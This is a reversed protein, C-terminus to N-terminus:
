VKRGQLCSPEHVVPIPLPCRFHLFSTSHHNIIAFFIQLRSLSILSFNSISQSRLEMESLNLFDEIALRLPGCVNQSFRVRKWVEYAFHMGKESEMGSWITGYITDKFTACFRITQQPFYVGPSNYKRTLHIFFSWTEFDIFWTCFFTLLTLTEAPPGTVQNAFIASQTFFFNVIFSWFCCFKFTYVLTTVVPLVRVKRQACNM